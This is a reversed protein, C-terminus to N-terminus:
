VGGGCIHLGKLDPHACQLCEEDLTSAARQMARAWSEVETALARVSRADEVKGGELFGRIQYFAQFAERSDDMVKLCEARAKKNMRDDQM